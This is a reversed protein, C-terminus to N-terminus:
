HKSALWGWLITDPSVYDSRCSWLSLPTYPRRVTKPNGQPNQFAFDFVIMCQNMFAKVKVQARSSSCLSFTNWIFIAQFSYTGKDARNGQWWFGAKLWRVMFTLQIGGTCCYIVARKIRRLSVSTTNVREYQESDTLKNLLSSIRERYRSMRETGTFHQSGFSVFFDLTMSLVLPQFILSRKRIRKTHSQTCLTCQTTKSFHEKESHKERWLKGACNTFLGVRRTNQRNNM